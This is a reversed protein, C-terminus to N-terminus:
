KINSINSLNFDLLRFVTFFTRESPGPMGDPAPGYKFPALSLCPPCMLNVSGEASWGVAGVGKLVFNLVARVMAVSPAIPLTMTM